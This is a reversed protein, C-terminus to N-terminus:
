TGMKTTSSVLVPDVDTSACTDDVDDANSRCSDAANSSSDFEGANSKCSDGATSDIKAEVDNAKCSAEPTLASEGSRVRKLATRTAELADGTGTNCDDNHDNHDNYDNQDAHGDCDDCDDM